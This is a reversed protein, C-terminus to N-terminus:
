IKVDQDQKQATFTPHFTCCGSSESVQQMIVTREFDNLFKQQSLNRFYVEHQILDLKHLNATKSESGKVEEGPEQKKGESIVAAPHGWTGKM